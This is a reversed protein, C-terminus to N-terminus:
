NYFLLPNKVQETILRLSITVPKKKCEVHLLFERFAVFHSVSISSPIYYFLRTLISREVWRSILDICGAVEEDNVTHNTSFPPPRRSLVLGHSKFKGRRMEITFNNDIPFASRSFTKILDMWKEPLAVPHLYVTVMETLEGIEM